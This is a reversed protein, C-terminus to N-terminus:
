SSAMKILAYVLVILLVFAGGIGFAAWDRATAMFNRFNGRPKTTQAPPFALTELPAVAAAQLAAAQMASAPLPAALTAAPRPAALTAPAKAPAPPAPRPAAPAQPTPRPAAAEEQQRQSQVWTM